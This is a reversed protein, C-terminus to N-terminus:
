RPSAADAAGLEAPSWRQVDFTGVLSGRMGPAIAIGSRLGPMVQLLRNLWASRPWDAWCMTEVFARRNM